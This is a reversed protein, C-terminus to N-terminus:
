PDVLHHPPWAPQPDSRATNISTTLDSVALMGFKNWYSTPLQSSISTPCRGTTEWMGVRDSRGPPQRNQATRGDDPGCTRGAEVIHDVAAREQRRPSKSQVGKVFDAGPSAAMVAARLGKPSPLTFVSAKSSRSWTSTGYNELRRRHRLLRRQAGEDQHRTKGLNRQRWDGGARSRQPLTMYEFEPPEGKANCWHLRRRWSGARPRWPSRAKFVLTPACDRLV